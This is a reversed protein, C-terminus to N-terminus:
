PPPPAADQVERAPLSLKDPLRFKCLRLLDAATHHPYKSPDERCKLAHLLNVFIGNLRKIDDAVRKIDDVTAAFTKTKASRPGTPKEIRDAARKYINLVLHSHVLTNRNERCRSFLDCLFELAERFDPSDKEALDTCDSLLDAMSLNSLHRMILPAVHEPIKAYYAIFLRMLAESSNWRASVVGLGVYCEKLASDSIGLWPDIPFGLLNKWYTEADDDSM